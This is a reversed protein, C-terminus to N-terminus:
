NTTVLNCNRSWTVMKLTKWIDRILYNFTYLTKTSPEFFVITIKIM